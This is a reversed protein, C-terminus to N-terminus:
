RREGVDFVEVDGNPFPILLNQKEALNHFAASVLTETNLYGTQGSHGLRDYLPRFFNQGAQFCALGKRNFFVLAGFQFWLGFRRRSLPQVLKREEALAARVGNQFFQFVQVKIIQRWPFCQIKQGFPFFLSLFLATRM